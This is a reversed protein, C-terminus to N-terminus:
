FQKFHLYTHNQHPEYTTCNKEKKRTANTAFSPSFCRSLSFLKNPPRDGNHHSTIVTMMRDYFTLKSLLSCKAISHTRTDNEPNQVCSLWYPHLLDLHGRFPKVNGDDNWRWFKNENFHFLNSILIIYSNGRFPVYHFPGLPRGNANM